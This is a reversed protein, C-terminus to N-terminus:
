SPEGCAGCDCVVLPQQRRGTQRIVLGDPFLHWLSYEAFPNRAAVPSHYRLRSGVLRWHKRGVHDTWWAASVSAAPRGGRGGTWSQHGAAEKAARRVFRRWFDADKEVRRQQLRQNARRKAQDLQKVLQEPTPDILRIDM